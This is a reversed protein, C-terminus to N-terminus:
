RGVEEDGGLVAQGLDAARSEQIQEDRVHPRYGNQQAEPDHLTPTPLESEIRHAGRVERRVPCRDSEQESQKAEPRLRPEHGQVYPERLRM